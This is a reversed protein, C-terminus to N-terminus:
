YDESIADLDDIGLMQRYMLSQPNSSLPLQYYLYGLYRGLAKRFRSLIVSTTVEEDDMRVAFRATSIVGSRSGGVGFAWRWDPQSLIYMDVKTFGILVAGRSALSSYKRDLEDLLREGILQNRQSNVTSADIPIEPLTRIDLGFRRAYCDRLYDFVVQPYPGIPVLYIQGGGQLKAPIPADVCHPINTTIGLDASPASQSPAAQKSSPAESNLPQPQLNGALGSCHVFGENAQDQQAKLEVKCWSGGSNSIKLRISLQTGKALTTVVSSETTADSYVTLSDDSVTVSSSQPAAAALAPIALASLLLALVALFSRSFPNLSSPM